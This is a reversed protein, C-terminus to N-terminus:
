ILDIFHQPSTLKKSIVIILYLRHYPYSLIQSYRFGSTLMTKNYLKRLAYAPPLNYLLNRTAFALHSFERQPTKSHNEFVLRGKNKRKKM